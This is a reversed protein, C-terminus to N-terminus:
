FTTEDSILLSNNFTQTIFYNIFLSSFCHQGRGWWNVTQRCSANCGRLPVVIHVNRPNRVTLDSWLCMFDACVLCRCLSELLSDRDLRRRHPRAGVPTWHPWWWGQNAKGTDLWVSSCSSCWLLVRLCRWWWTVTEMIIAGPLVKFTSHEWSMHSRDHDFAKRCFKAWLLFVFWVTRM